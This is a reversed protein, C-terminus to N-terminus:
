RTAGHARTFEFLGCAMRADRFVQPDANPMMDGNDDVASFSVLSLDSFTELVTEPAFVRHANFEVRERGIPVSFYLKGGQALVRSLARMGRRWGDADLKDGYRGLGFHEVAHLSSLSIVSQDAFSTLQTGDEQRFTLGPVRSELPRVDVVEVPMFSLVHAVFGDVRSGVDVHRTVKSAFIKRAAWLDQHFYHGSAMGAQQRFDSLVPYISGLSLPFKSDAFERYVKLDHIFHPANLMVEYARYPDTGLLQLARYTRHLAAGVRRRIPNQLAVGMEREGELM